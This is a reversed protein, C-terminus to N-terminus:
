FIDTYESIFYNEGIRYFDVNNFFKKKTLPTKHTSDYYDKFELFLDDVNTAWLTPKAAYIFDDPSKMNDLVEKLKSQNNATTTILRNDSDYIAIRDYPTLKLNLDGLKTKYIM